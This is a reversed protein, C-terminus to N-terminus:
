RPASKISGIVPTGTKVDTWYVRTADLALSVPSVVDAGAAVIVPAGGVLNQISPGGAAPNIFYVGGTITLTTDVRADGVLAPTGTGAPLVAATSQALRLKPCPGCIVQGSTPRSPRARKRM